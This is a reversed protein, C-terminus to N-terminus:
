MLSVASSPYKSIYNIIPTKSRLQLCIGGTKSLFIWKRLESLTNKHQMFSARTFILLGSRTGANAIGRHATGIILGSQLLLPLKAVVHEREGSWTTPICCHSCRRTRRHRDTGGLGTSVAVPKHHPAAKDASAASFEIQEAEARRSALRYCKVKLDPCAQPPPRMWFAAMNGGAEKRETKMVPKKDPAHCCSADYKIEFSTLQPRPRKVSPLAPLRSHILFM